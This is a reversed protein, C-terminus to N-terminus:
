VDIGDGFFALGVEADRQFHRCRIGVGGGLAGHGLRVGIVNGIDFVPDGLLDEM